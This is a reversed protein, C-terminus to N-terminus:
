PILEPTVQLGLYRYDLSETTFLPVQPHKAYIGHWRASVEWDPLRVM